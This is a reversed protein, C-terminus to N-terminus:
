LIRLGMEIQRSPSIISNLAPTRQPAFKELRGDAERARQMEGLMRAAKLPDDTMALGQLEMKTLPATLFREDAAHDPATGRGDASSSKTFHATGVERRADTLNAHWGQIGREHVRTDDRGARSLRDIEAAWHRSREFLDRNHATRTALYAMTREHQAEPTASAQIHALEPPTPRNGLRIQEERTFMQDIQPPQAPEPGPPIRGDKLREELMHGLVAVGVEPSPAYHLAKMEEPTLPANAFRPDAQSHQAADAANEPAPSAIKEYRMRGGPIPAETQLTPRRVHSPRHPGDPEEREHEDAM